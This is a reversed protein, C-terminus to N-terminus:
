SSSGTDFFTLRGFGLFQGYPMESEPFATVGFLYVAGFRPNQVARLRISVSAGPAIPPNFVVTVKKDANVTIKMGDKAESPNIDIVELAPEQKIEVKQLAEGADKPVSINFYYIANTINVTNYTTYAEVLTPIQNFYTKGDRLKVAYSPSILSIPLIPALAFIALAMGLSNLSRQM